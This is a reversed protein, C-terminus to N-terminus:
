KGEDPTAPPAQELRSRCSQLHNVLGDRCRLMHNKMAELIKTLRPREKILQALIGLADNLQSLSRKGLSVSAAPQEYIGDGISYALNALSRGLHFLIKLGLPRAEQPLIAAYVNCWGLATQRLTVFVPDSEFFIADGPQLPRTGSETEDDEELANDDLEQVQSFECEWRTDCNECDFECELMKGKFDRAIRRTILQNAGPLDCFRKLLEFFRAAYADSERLYKEWEYETWNTTDPPEAM